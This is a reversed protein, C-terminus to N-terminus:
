RSRIFLLYYMRRQAPYAVIFEGTAALTPDGATVYAIFAKGDAFAREIRNM